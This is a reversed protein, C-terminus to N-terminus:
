DQKYRTKFGWRLSLTQGNRDLDLRVTYETGAKLRSLAYLALVRSDHLNPDAAVGADSDGIAAVILHPVPTEGRELLDHSRVRFPLDKGFQVTVITGSPWGAPPAIPTPVEAGDFSTPVLRAGDPPYIVVRDEADLALGLDMVDANRLMGTCNAAPGSRGYGADRTRPDLLPLRHYLTRIWGAVALDPDNAFAIVEAMGVGRSPYGMAVMRDWPDRGLFGTWAPDQQHPSLGTRGYDECHTTLFAAHARAAASLSEAPELPDLGCSFRVENVAQLATWEAEDMWSPRGPSDPPLDQAPLDQLVQTGDGPELVDAEPLADPGGAAPGCGLVVALWPLIGWSGRRGRAM